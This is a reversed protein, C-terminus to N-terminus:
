TPSQSSSSVSSSSSSSSSSTSISSSSSQSSASSSSASSSSSSSQSSASSSSISSSTSQSSSSVSSSSSEDEMHLIQFQSGDRTTSRPGLHQLSGTHFNLVQGPLTEGTSLVDTLVAQWMTNDALTVTVQQVAGADASHAASPATDDGARYMRTITLTRTAIGTPNGLEFTVKKSM